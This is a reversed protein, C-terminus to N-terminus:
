ECSCHLAHSCQATSSHEAGNLGGGLWAGLSGSVEYMADRTSWSIISEPCPACCVCWGAMISPGLWGCITCATDCGASMRSATHSSPPAPACTTSAMSSAADPPMGGSRMRGTAVASCWTHAATPVCRKLLHSSAATSTSAGSCAGQNLCRCSALCAATLSSSDLSMSSRLLNLFFMLAKQPPLFFFPDTSFLRSILRLEEQREETTMHLPLQFMSPLLTMAAAVSLCVALPQRDISQGSM